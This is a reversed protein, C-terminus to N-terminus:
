GRPKPAVAREPRRVRISELFRVTSERSRMVKRAARTIGDIEERVRLPLPDPKYFTM